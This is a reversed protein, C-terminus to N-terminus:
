TSLPKEEVVKFINSYKRGGNNQVLFVAMRTKRGRHIVRFSNLNSQPHVEGLCALMPWPFILRPCSLPTPWTVTHAKVAELREQGMLSWTEAGLGLLGGNHLQENKSCRTQALCENQRM